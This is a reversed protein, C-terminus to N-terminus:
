MGLGLLHVPTIVISFVECGASAVTVV